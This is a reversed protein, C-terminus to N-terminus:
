CCADGMQVGQVCDVALLLRDSVIIPHNRAAKFVLLSLLGVSVDQCLHMHICIFAMKLGNRKKVHTWQDTVTGSRGNSRQHMWFFRQMWRNRRSRSSKRWARLRGRILPNVHPRRANSKLNTSFLANLIYLVFEYFNMNHEHMNMGSGPQWIRFMKHVRMYDVEFARLLVRLWFKWRKCWFIFFDFQNHRRWPPPFAMWSLDAVVSTANCCFAWMKGPFFSFWLNLWCVSGVSRVLTVLLRVLLRSVVFWFRLGLSMAEEDSSAGPDKESASIWPFLLMDFSNPHQVACSFHSTEPFMNLM